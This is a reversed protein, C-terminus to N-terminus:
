LVRLRGRQCSRKTRFKRLVHTRSARCSGICEARAPGDRMGSTSQLQNRSIGDCCRRRDDPACLPISPLGESWGPHEPRYFRRRFEDEPKTMDLKSPADSAMIRTLAEGWTPLFCPSIDPHPARVAAPDRLSQDTHPLANGNARQRLSLRPFWSIARNRGAVAPGQEAALAADAHARNRHDNQSAQARRIFKLASHNEAQDPHGEDIRDTREAQPAAM